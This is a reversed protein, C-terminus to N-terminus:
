CPAKQEALCALNLQPRCSIHSIEQVQLHPLKLENRLEQEDLELLDGGTIGHAEIVDTAKFGMLQLLEVTEEVTYRVGSCAAQLRHLDNQAVHQACLSDVEPWAATSVSWWVFVALEKM